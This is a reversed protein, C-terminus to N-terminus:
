ADGGSWPCYYLAPEHRMLELVSLEGLLRWWPALLAARMGGLGFSPRSPLRYVRAALAATQPLGLLSNVSALARPLGGLEDVLGRECADAGNWVRGRALPEVEETARGRGQAVVAVFRAYMAAVHDQMVAQERASLGRAISYMDASEATRVWQPHVGARELLSAVNPKASVVGISGTITLPQAVIKQCACALYYGGSAAVEGFCAVVPKKQGLRGIVRHMQESALASGGPSDIYLVVGKVKQDTRLADLTRTLAHPTLGAGMRTAEDGMITGRLPVVAICAPQRMPRWLPARRALYHAVPVTRRAAVEETPPTPQLLAALEDEYCVGDVLGAAHADNALLLAREFLQAIQEADLQRAERLASVLAGHMGGLLAELQERAPGSMTDRLAPEAASKYEGAAHAEVAIGLRSLLSRVYLPSSSLGLPGFSSFPAMYIRDAALAVFLEKNGGGQPLYCVVQKGAARLNRFMDRVSECMAWGAELTPLRVCVGAVHRDAIALRVLRQLEELSRVEAPDDSRERLRALWTDRRQFASLRARLHLTLWRPEGRQWALRAALWFPSFLLRLLNGFFRLV